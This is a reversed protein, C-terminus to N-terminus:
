SNRRHRGLHQNAQLEGDEDRTIMEDADARAVLHGEEDTITYAILKLGAQPHADEVIKLIALGVHNLQDVDANSQEIEVMMKLNTM